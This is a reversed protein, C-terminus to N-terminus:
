AMPTASAQTPTPKLFPKLYALFPREPSFTPECGVGSDSSFGYQAMFKPFRIWLDHGSGAM